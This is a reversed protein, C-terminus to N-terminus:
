VYRTKSEGEKNLEGLLMEKIKDIANCALHITTDKDQDTAEYEKVAIEKYALNAAELFLEKPLHLSMKVSQDSLTEVKSVFAKM